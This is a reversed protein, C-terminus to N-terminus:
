PLTVKRRIVINDLFPVYVLINISRVSFIHLIRRSLQILLQVKSNLTACYLEIAYKLAATCSSSVSQSRFLM